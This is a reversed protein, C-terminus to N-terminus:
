LAEAAVTGIDQTRMRALSPWVQDPHQEGLHGLLPAHRGRV